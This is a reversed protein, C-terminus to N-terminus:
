IKNKKVKRKTCFNKKGIKKTDLLSLFSPSQLFNKQLDPFNKKSPDTSFNKKISRCFKKKTKM